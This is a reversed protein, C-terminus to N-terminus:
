QAASTDIGVLEFSHEATAIFFYQEDAVVFFTLLPLLAFIIWDSLLLLLSYAGIWVDVFNVM